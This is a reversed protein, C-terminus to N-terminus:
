PTSIRRIDRWTIKTKMCDSGAVRSIKVHGLLSFEIREVRVASTERVSDRESRIDITKGVCFIM